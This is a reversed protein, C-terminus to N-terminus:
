LLINGLITNLLSLNTMLGREEGKVNTNETSFFFKPNLYPQYLCCVNKQVSSADPTTM